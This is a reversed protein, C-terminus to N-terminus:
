LIEVFDCGGLNESNVIFNWISIESVQRSWWSEKEQEHQRRRLRHYKKAYAGSNQHLEKDCCTFFLCENLNECYFFGSKYFFCHVYWVSFWVLTASRSFFCVRSCLYNYLLFSSICFPGHRLEQRLVCSNISSKLADEPVIRRNSATALLGRKNSLRFNTHIHFIPDNEWNFCVIFVVIM